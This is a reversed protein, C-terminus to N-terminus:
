VLHEAVDPCGFCDNLIAALRLRKEPALEEGQLYDRLFLADAWALQDGSSLPDKAQAATEAFRPHVQALFKLLIFGRQQLFQCVESFLPQDQYLELFAVQVEVALAHQLRNQGHHLVVLEAGRVNLRLLDPKATEPVDDLRLTQVEEYGDEALGEGLGSFCKFLRPNLRFLSASARVNGGPAPATVGDVVVIPHPIQGHHLIRKTGDSVIGVDYRENPGAARQLAECAEPNSDIGYVQAFGGNVVDMYAPIKGARRCGIDVIRTLEGLKLREHLLTDAMGDMVLLTGFFDCSGHIM